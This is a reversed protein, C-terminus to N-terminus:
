VLRADCLLSVPECAVPAFAAGFGVRRAGQTDMWTEREFRIVKAVNSGFTDSM